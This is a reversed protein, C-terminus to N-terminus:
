FKNGITFITSDVIETPLISKNCYIQLIDEQSKENIDVSFGCKELYLSPTNTFSKFEARLPSAFVRRKDNEELKIDQTTQILMVSGSSSLSSASSLLLEIEEISLYMLLGELLWVTPKSRDFGSEELKKIWQETEMLNSPIHINKAKSLPAVIKTAEELVRSKYEFTQPFDIEWVTSREDFPLRLARTDLGAGLIVFQQYKGIKSTIYDDIYKTRLAIRTSIYPFIIISWAKVPSCTETLYKKMDQITTDAPLGMKVLWEKVTDTTATQQPNMKMRADYMGGIIDRSEDTCSFFYAYPDFTAISSDLVKASFPEKQYINEYYSQLSSNLKFILQSSEDTPVTALQDKVYSNSILARIAAVMVSTRPVGLTIVNSSM